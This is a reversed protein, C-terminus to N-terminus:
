TFGGEKKVSDMFLKVSKETPKIGFEYHYKVILGILHRNKVWFPFGCNM